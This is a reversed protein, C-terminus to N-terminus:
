HLEDPVRFLITKEVCRAMRCDSAYLKSLGPDTAAAALGPLATMALGPTPPSDKRRRQEQVEKRCRTYASGDSSDKCGRKVPPHHCHTSNQFREPAIPTPPNARSLELLVSEFTISHNFSAPSHALPTKLRPAPTVTHRSLNRFCITRLSRVDDFHVSECVLLPPPPKSFHSFSQLWCPLACSQLKWFPNYSRRM